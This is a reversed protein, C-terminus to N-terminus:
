LKGGALVVTNTFATAKALVAPPVPASGGGSAIAAAAHLSLQTDNFVAEVTPVSNTSVKGTVVQDLYVRNAALVATETASISQFASTTTCGVLTLVLVGSLFLKKV